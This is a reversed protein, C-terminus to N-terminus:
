TLPPTAAHAVHGALKGPQLPCFVPRSSAGRGAAM